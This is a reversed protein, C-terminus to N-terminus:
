IACDIFTAIGDIANDAAAESYAAVATVFTGDIVVVPGKQVDVVGTVNAPPATTTTQSAVYDDTCGASAPAAGGVVVTTATACTVLVLRAAFKLM